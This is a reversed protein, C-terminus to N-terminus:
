ISELNAGRQLATVAGFLLQLLVCWSNRRPLENGQFFLHWKDGKQSNLQLNWPEEAAKRVRFYGMSSHKLPALKNPTGALSLCCSRYHNTGQTLAPTTSTLGTLSQLGLSHNPTQAKSSSSWSSKLTEEGRLELLKLVGKVCLNPHELLWMPKLNHEASSM